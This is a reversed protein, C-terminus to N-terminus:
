SKKEAQCSERRERTEQVAKDIVATQLLQVPIKWGKGSRYAKIEGDRIMKLVTEQSTSILKAAEAASVVLKDM